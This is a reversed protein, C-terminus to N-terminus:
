KETVRLRVIVAALDPVARFLRFGVTENDVRECESDCVCVTM